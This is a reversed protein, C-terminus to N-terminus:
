FICVINNFCYDKFEVVALGCCPVGNQKKSRFIIEERNILLSRTVPRQRAMLSHMHCTKIIHDSMTQQNDVNHTLDQYYSGFPSSTLILQHFPYFNFTIIASSDQIEQHYPCFLLVQKALNLYM